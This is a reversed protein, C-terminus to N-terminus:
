WIRRRGSTLDGVPGAAYTQAPVKATGLLDTTLRV